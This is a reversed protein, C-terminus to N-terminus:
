HEAKKLAKTVQQHLYQCINGITAKPGSFYTNSAWVPISIGMETELEDMFFTYELSHFDLDDTINVSPAFMGESISVKTNLLARRVVNEVDSFVMFKKVRTIDNIRIDARINNSIDPLGKQEVQSVINKGTQLGSIKGICDSKLETDYVFNDGDFYVFVVCDKENQLKEKVTTVNLKM